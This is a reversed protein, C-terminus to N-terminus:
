TKTKLTGKVIPINEAAPTMEADVEKETNEIGKLESEQKKTEEEEQILGAITNDVSGQDLRIPEPAADIPANQGGIPM